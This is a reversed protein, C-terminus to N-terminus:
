ASEDEDWDWWPEQWPLKLEEDFLISDVGNEPTWEFADQIGTIGPYDDFDNILDALDAYDSGDDPVWIMLNHENIFFAYLRDFDVGIGAKYSVLEKLYPLLAETAGYPARVHLLASMKGNIIQSDASIAIEQALDNDSAIDWLEDRFKQGKPLAADPLIVQYTDAQLALYRGYAGVHRAYTYTAGPAQPRGEKVVTRLQNRLLPDNFNIRKTTEAISLMDKEAHECAAKQHTGCLKPSETMLDGLWLHGVSTSVFVCGCPIAEVYSSQGHNKFIRQVRTVVSRASPDIRNLDLM